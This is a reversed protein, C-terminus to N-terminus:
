FDDEEETEETEDDPIVVDTTALVVEYESSGMRLMAARSNPARDDAYMFPQVTGCLEAYADFLRDRDVGLAQVSSATILHPKVHIPDTSASAQIYSVSIEREDLGMSIITMDMNTIRGDEIQNCITNFTLRLDEVSIEGSNMLEVQECKVHSM